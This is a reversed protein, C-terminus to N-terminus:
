FNKVPAPFVTRAHATELIMIAGNNIKFRSRHNHVMESGFGLLFIDTHSAHVQAM